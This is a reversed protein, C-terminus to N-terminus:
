NDRKRKSKLLHVSMYYVPLTDFLAEGVVDASLDRPRQRGSDDRSYADDRRTADRREERDNAASLSLKEFPMILM